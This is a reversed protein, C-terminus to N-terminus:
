VEISSPKNKRKILFTNSDQIHIKWPSGIRSATLEEKEIYRLITEKKLQLLKAVDEITLTEKCNLTKEGPLTKPKRGM